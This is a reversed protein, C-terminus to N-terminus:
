ALQMALSVRQKKVRQVQKGVLVPVRQYRFLLAPRWDMDLRMKTCISELHLNCVLPLRLYASEPRGEEGVM